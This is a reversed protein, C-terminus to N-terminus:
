LKASLFGLLASAISCIATVIIWFITTKRDTANIPIDNKQEKALLLLAIDLQSKLEKNENQFKLSELTLRQIEKQTDLNIQADNIKKEDM